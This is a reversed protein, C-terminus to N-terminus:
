DHLGPHNIESRSLGERRKGFSKKKTQADLAPVDQMFSCRRCVYTLKDVSQSWMVLRAKAGCKLCPINEPAKKGLQWPLRMRSRYLLSSSSTLLSLNITPPGPPIRETPHHYPTGTRALAPHLPEHHM